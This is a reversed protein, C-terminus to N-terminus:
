PAPTTAPAAPQGRPRIVAWGVRILPLRGQFRREFARPPVEPILDPFRRRIDEPPTGRPDTTPWLIIGGKEELDRATVWPSREPTAYLFIGPRSPAAVAVLPALRRDGAIIALPRGTRRAFSEGFFRGMEGAPQAIQFDGTSLWPLVVVAVVMFLPPLVLLATWALSLPRQHALRIRDGAVIVVALGSLVVLPGAVFVEEANSLVALLVLAPIPALAFFYVFTRAFPDVPQRVLEPAPGRTAFPRGLTLAVLVALGLHAVLLWGVLRAWARVNQDIGALAAVGLGDSQEAWILHPAFILVAIAGGLWPEFSTFQRHGRDTTLAFGILLGFLALGAYTTFLLLGVAVGVAIWHLRRGEGVALWYHLLTLAWLPMALIGPGFEPTPLTFVAVGVMLLVAAAAHVEGVIRRGLLFVIFYTAAVCLQSLLYVGFMGAGAYALEALWHALPPGLYSALRFEHGVSIAEPLQGPPASYFLFPVLTWLLAQAIAAAWVLFIPRTRLIEVFLPVTLM